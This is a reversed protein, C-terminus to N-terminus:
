GIRSLFRIQEEMISRYNFAWDRHRLFPPERKKKERGALCTQVAEHFRVRRRGRISRERKM